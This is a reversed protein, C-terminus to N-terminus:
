PWKKRKEKVSKKEKKEKASKGGKKEDRPRNEKAPHHNIQIPSRGLFM